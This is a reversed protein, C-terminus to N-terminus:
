AGFVSYGNRGRSKTRYMAQDAWKMLEDLADGDQPYSSIGISASICVQQGELSFPQCLSENIKQAQAAAMGPAFLGAGLAPATLGTVRFQM